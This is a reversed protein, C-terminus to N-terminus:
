DTKYWKRGNKTKIGVFVMDGFLINQWANYEYKEYKYHITTFIYELLTFPEMHTLLICLIVGIIRSRCFGEEARRKYYM